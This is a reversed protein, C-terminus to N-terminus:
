APSEWPRRSAIYGVFYSLANGVGSIVTSRLWSVSRYNGAQFSPFTVLLKIILGDIVVVLLELLPVFSTGTRELLPQFVFIFVLANAISYAAFVRLLSVGRFALMLAVVGAEVVFAWFAVIWFAMLSPIDLMVPNARAVLPIFLVLGLLFHRHIPSPTQQM